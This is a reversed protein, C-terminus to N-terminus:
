HNPNQNQFPIKLTPMSLDIREYPLYRKRAPRTPTVSPRSAWAGVASNRNLLEARVTEVRIIRLAERLNAVGDRRQALLPRGADQEDPLIQVEAEVHGVAKVDHVAARNNRRPRDGLEVVRNDFFM